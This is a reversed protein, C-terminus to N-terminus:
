FCTEWPRPDAASLGLNIAFPERVKSDTVCVAVNPPGQLWRRQLVSMCLSLVQKAITFSMPPERLVSAAEERSRAM